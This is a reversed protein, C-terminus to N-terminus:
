SPSASRHRATSAAPCGSSPSWIRVTSAVSSASAPRSGPSAPPPPDPPPGGLGGDPDHDLGRVGGQGLPDDALERGVDPQGQGALLLWYFALLALLFWYLPLPM